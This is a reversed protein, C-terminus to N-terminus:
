RSRPWRPLPRRCEPGACEELKRLSRAMYRKLKRHGRRRGLNRLEYPDKHLDYLETQGGRGYRVYKWPGVRLGIWPMGALRGNLNRERSQRRLPIGAASELLIPRRSAKRKRKWYGSFSRGDVKMRGTNGTLKLITPALDINAAPEGIRIGKRVGPGRVLLPVSTAEEYALFKSSRIRHEGNFFGNDSVFFIYTNKLRGSRRLGRVIRGVSEDVSRLSELTKQYAIRLTKMEAPSSRRMVRRVIKPKDGVSRENFNPPRPLATGRASGYHRAAPEPGAPDIEDVHPAHFDIQMYLPRRKKRPLVKLAARTILDTHYLCHSRLTSCSGHDRSRRSSYRKPGIPGRIRGGDNLEYGYYSRTSYDLFDSLWGSWGPPIEKSAYQNLFKGLHVTRYGSDQLVTALNTKRIPLARYGLWGGSEGSNRTLRNNHSYRGSLLSARSPTCTPNSVYYNTFEAGQGAMLRLTNPMVRRPKGGPVRRMARLAAKTQDDTQIVLVDPRANRADARRAEAESTGRLLVCLSLALAFSAAM